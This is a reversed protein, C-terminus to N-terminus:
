GPMTFISAPHNAPSNPSSADSHRTSRIPLSWYLHKANASHNSAENDIDALLLTTVIDERISLGETDSGVALCNKSNTHPPANGVLGRSPPVAGDSGDDTLFFDWIM